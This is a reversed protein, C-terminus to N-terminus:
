RMTWMRVRRFYLSTGPARPVTSQGRVARVALPKDGSHSLNGRIRKEVIIIKLLYSLLLLYSFFSKRM